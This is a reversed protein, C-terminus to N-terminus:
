ITELFAVVDVADPYDTLRPHQAAGFAVRRPHDCCRSVVCQLERDHEALWCQVEEMTHYHTYAIVCLARPFARQEVALAGGLDRYSSGQMTYLAKTQRYNNLYKSHLDAPHLAAPFDVGEPLWILSSNRCGLGNHLWIDESLLALEQESENGDLVAVSYRSGRLLTPIRGYRARFYRNTNDSGTAIVADPPTTGDDLTIALAPNLAHLREILYEILVRDKSSPKVRCRHGSVAVCLLDFFGVLPLNGAMIVLVSKPSAVPVCYPMLWARLAEEDLMEQRIAEVATLIGAPTFWANERCAAEIVRRTTADQGFHRLEEGLAVFTMLTADTM